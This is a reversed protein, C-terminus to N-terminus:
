FLYDGPPPCPLGSWYGQRSFGTSLPAQHAVTWPTAFLRVCSFHSLVCMCVCACVGVCARVCVKSHFKCCNCLPLSVSFLCISPSSIESTYLWFFFFDPTERTTWHNLTWRAVCPVRTWDRAQSSGVLCLLQAGGWCSGFGAHQLGWAAWCFDSCDSAQGGCDLSYGWEGRSSFARSCCCPGLM